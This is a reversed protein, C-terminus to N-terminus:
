IRTGPVDLAKLYVQEGGVETEMAQYLLEEFQQRKV